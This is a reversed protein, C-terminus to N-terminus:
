HAICEVVNRLLLLSIEDPDRLGQELEVIHSVHRAKAPKNFTYNTVSKCKDKNNTSTSASFLIQIGKIITVFSLNLRPLSGFLIRLLWVLTYTPHAMWWKRCHVLSSIRQCNWRSEPSWLYWQSGGM